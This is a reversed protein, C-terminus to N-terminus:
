LRIYSAVFTFGPYLKGYVFECYLQSLLSVLVLHSDGPTILYPMFRSLYLEFKEYINMEALTTDRRRVTVKLKNAGFYEVVVPVPRYAAISEINDGRGLQGDRGRGFVYRLIYRFNKVTLCIFSCM